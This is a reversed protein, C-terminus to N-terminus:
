RLEEAVGPLEIEIQESWGSFSGDIGYAGIHGAWTRRQRGPAPPGSDWERVQLVTAGPVTLAAAGLLGDDLNPEAPLGLDREGGWVVGFLGGHEVPLDVSIWRDQRVIPGREGLIPPEPPVAVAQSDVRFSTITLEEMVVSWDGLGLPQEPMLVVLIRDESYVDARVVAVAAGFGDLLELPPGQEVVPTSFDETVSLQVVQTDVLEAEVVVWTGPPVDQAGDPPWQLPVQPGEALVEIDPLYCGCGAGPVALLALVLCLALWAALRLPLADPM